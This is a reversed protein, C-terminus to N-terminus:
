PLKKLRKPPLIIAPIKKVIINNSKCRSWITNTLRCLYHDKYHGPKGTVLCPVGHFGIIRTGHLHVLLIIFGRRQTNGCGDAAPQGPLIPAMMKPLRHYPFQLLPKRHLFKVRLVIGLANGPEPRVPLRTRSKLQHGVVLLYIQVFRPPTM